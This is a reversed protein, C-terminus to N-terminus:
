CHSFLSGDSCAITWHYHLRCGVHMNATQIGTLRGSVTGASRDVTGLKVRM